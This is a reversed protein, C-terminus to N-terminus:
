SCIEPMGPNISTNNDNCDISSCPNERDFYGDNDRDVADGHSIHTTLAADDIVIEVGNQHCVKVKINPSSSNSFEEMLTEKEIQENPINRQCSTFLLITLLQLSLKKM